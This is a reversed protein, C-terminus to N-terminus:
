VKESSEHLLQQLLLKEKAELERQKSIVLLEDIITSLLVKNIRKVAGIFELEMGNIPIFQIIKEPQLSLLRQAYVPELYIALEEASILRDNNLDINSKLQNFLDIIKIFLEIDSPINLNYEKKLVKFKSLFDKALLLLKNDMLLMALAKTANSVPYKYSPLKVNLSHNAYKTKKKNSLQTSNLTPKLVNSQVGLIDALKEYWLDRLLNKPLADIQLKAEQALKNLSEINNEPYKKLLYDFFFDSLVKAELLIKKFEERSKERILLDPDYGQPLSVFKITHNNNLIGTAMMKISFNMARVSAKRGADDGDFCFIVEPVINIITMIHQENLSTGLTAVVNNFGAQALTIVDLYGEVVILNNINKLKSKVGSLGYLEKQKTFVLTEPSNLYKPPNNEADIARAGFAIVKNFKNYIPFMIRSRFRDYFKGNKETILGAQQLLNKIDVHGSFNACISLDEKTCVDILNTWNSNAFGLNFAKVTTLSIGRATLYKLAVISQMKNKMLEQHYFNAAFDMIKYINDILPNTESTSVKELSLGYQKSLAEVSDVFGKHEMLMFFKIADGSEKCGFCHFFQKDKNVSFSPTKEQHFPCLGIFNTGVQKLKVKKNILEILDIRSLLSAVFQEPIRM